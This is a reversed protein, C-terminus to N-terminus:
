MIKGICKRGKSDMLEGTFQTWKTSYLRGNWRSNSPTAYCLNVKLRNM